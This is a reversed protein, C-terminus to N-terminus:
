SKKINQYTKFHLKAIKKLEVEGYNEFIERAQKSVVDSAGKSLRYKSTSHKIFWQNFKNRALISAAAVATYREAKPTQIFKVNFYKTKSQIGLNKNSFKDTIVTKCNVKELINEIVKSHCWDLLSNLNKFKEYLQNYKEPSILIVDYDDKVISLIKKSLIGISNDDIAKSDRVNINNLEANTKEDVFVGGVVLPGFFDGKGSEDTGIYENPEDLQQVPLDLNHQDFLLSYIESYLPDSKNGQLITKVGKKGFYVQVKIKSNKSVVEFEYNYNKESIKGPLIKKSALAQFHDNITTFAKEKINM